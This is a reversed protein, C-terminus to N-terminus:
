QATRASVKYIGYIHLTKREFASLSSFFSAINSTVAADLNYGEPIHRRTHQYIAIFTTSDAAEITLTHKGTVKFRIQEINVSYCSLGLPM